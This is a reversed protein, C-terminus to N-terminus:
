ANVLEKSEIDFLTAHRRLDLSFRGDTFPAILEESGILYGSSSNVYMPSASFEVKRYTMGNMHSLLRAPTYGSLAEYGNFVIFADPTETNYTPVLNNSFREKKLPMVWARGTVNKGNFTRIGFGGNTKLACRSESYSSWWCSEPHAFDRAPKNLQRTVAITFDIATSHDRASNGVKTLVAPPVKLGYKKYAMRSLRKSYNGDKNQWQNGLESVAYALEIWDRRESDDFQYAYNSIISIIANVGEESIEGAPLQINIKKDQKLMGDGNNKVRFTTQGSVCCSNEDTSHRHDARDARLYQGGCTDCYLTNHDFCRQCALHPSNMVSYMNGGRVLTDCHNCMVYVPRCEVCVSGGQVRTLLSRREPYTCRTCWGIDTSVRAPEATKNALQRLFGRRFTQVSAYTPYDYTFERYAERYDLDAFSPLDTALPM